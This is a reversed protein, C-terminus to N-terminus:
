FSTAATPKLFLTSVIRCCIESLKIHDSLQRAAKEEIMLDNVQELFETWPEDPSVEVLHQKVLSSKHQIFSM